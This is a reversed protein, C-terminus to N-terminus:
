VIHLIFIGPPGQITMVGTQMNMFRTVANAQSANLGDLNIKHGTLIKKPEYVNTRQLIKVAFANDDMKCVREAAEIIRATPMLPTLLHWKIGCELTSFQKIIGEHDDTMCPEFMVGLEEECNCSTTCDCFKKLCTVALRTNDDPWVLQYVGFPMPAEFGANSDGDNYRAGATRRDALADLENIVVCDLEM